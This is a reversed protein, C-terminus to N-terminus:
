DSTVRKPRGRPKSAVRGSLDLSELGKKAKARLTRPKRPGKAMRVVVNLENKLIGKLLNTQVIKLAQEGVPNISAVKELALEFLRALREPQIDKERAGDIMKLVATEMQM